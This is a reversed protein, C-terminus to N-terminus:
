DLWGWSRRALVGNITGLTVGYRAALDRKSAATDSRIDIVAARTLKSNGHREGRNTTGHMVKDSANQKPTAWYVHKPHVCALHGKGCKHAAHHTDSPAPGHVMECMARSATQLVGDIWLKGYGDDRTSYPWKLCDEGDYASHSKLWDLCDGPSTVGALPDGLHRNRTYHLNCWGLGYVQRSCGDVACEAPIHPPREYLADGHFRLRQYHKNCLSKGFHPNGCGPISCIRHSKAM